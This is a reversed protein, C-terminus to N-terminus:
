STSLLFRKDFHFRQGNYFVNGTISTDLAYIAISNRGESFTDITIPCDELYISIVKETTRHELIAAIIVDDLMSGHTLITQSSVGGPRKVSITGKDKDSLVFFIETTGIPIRIQKRGCRAELVMGTLLLVRKAINHRFEDM